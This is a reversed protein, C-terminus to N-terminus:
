QDGADSADDDSADTENGADGGDSGAFGGADTGKGAGDEGGSDGTAANSPTGVGADYGTGDTEGPPIPQTNLSCAAVLALAGIIALVWGTRLRSRMIGM